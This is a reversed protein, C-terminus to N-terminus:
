LNCNLFISFSMCIGGDGGGTNAIRNPNCISIKRYCRIAFIAFGSRREATINGKPPRFIVKKMKSINLTIYLKTM